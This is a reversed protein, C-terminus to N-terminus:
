KPPAITARGAAAPREAVSEAVAQRLSQLSQDFAGRESEAIIKVFHALGNTAVSPTGQELM